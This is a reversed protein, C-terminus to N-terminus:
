PLTILERRLSRRSPGDCSDPWLWLRQGNLKLGILWPGLYDCSLTVEQWAVTPDDRWSWRVGGTAQPTAHLEGWPRAACWQWLVAILVVLTLLALWPPSWWGMLGVVGLCLGLHMALAM